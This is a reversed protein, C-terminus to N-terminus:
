VLLKCTFHAEPNSSFIVFLDAPIIEDCKVKILNGIKIENWKTRRFKQSKYVLTNTNNTVRDNRYRKLEEILDLLVGIFIVILFPTLSSSVSKTSLIKICSLISTILFCISLLNNM